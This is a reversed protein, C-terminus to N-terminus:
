RDKTNELWQIFSSIIFRDNGVGDFDVGLGNDSKRVVQAKLRRVQIEQKYPFGFELELIQNLQVDTYDTAIFLGQKSADCIQGTTVPM